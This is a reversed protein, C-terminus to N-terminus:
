DYGDYVQSDRGIEHAKPSTLFISSVLLLEGTFTIRTFAPDHKRREVSDM